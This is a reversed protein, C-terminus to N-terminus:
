IRLITQLGPPSISLASPTRQVPESGLDIQVDIIRIPVAILSVLPYVHLNEVAAMQSVSVTTKCCSHNGGGMDCNGVMKQCCAMEADTMAPTQFCALLPAMALLM